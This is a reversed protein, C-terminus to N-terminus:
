ANDMEEDGQLRVYNHVSNVAVDWWSLSSGRWAQRGQEEPATTAPGVGRFKAQHLWRLGILGM